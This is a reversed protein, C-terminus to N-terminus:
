RLVTAPAAPSWLEIAAYAYAGMVVAQFLHWLGHFQVLSPPRCVPSGTRGLLFSAVGLVLAVVVVAWGIARPTWGERPHPRFGKRWAAFEGLSAAAVLLGSLLDTGKPLLALSM